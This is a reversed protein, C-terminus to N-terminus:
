RFAMRGHRRFDHWGALIETVRLTQEQWVFGDPCDPAKQLLPPEDFIPEIPQDYFHIFPPVGM